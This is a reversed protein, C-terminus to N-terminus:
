EHPMLNKPVRKSRIRVGIYGGNVFFRMPGGDRWILIEVMEDPSKKKTEAVLSSPRDLEAGDYEVILDGKELGIEQAQSGDVVGVIEVVRVQADEPKRLAAAKQEPEIAKTSAAPFISIHKLKKEAYEFAYNDEGLHRLFGKLVVEMTKGRIQINVTETEREELGSVTVGFRNDISNLIQKLPIDGAELMWGDEDSVLFSLTRNQSAADAVPGPLLICQAQLLLFMIFWRTCRYRM